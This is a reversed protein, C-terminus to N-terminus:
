SIIYTHFSIGRLTSFTERASLSHQNYLMALWEISKHTIDLWVQSDYWTRVIRMHSLCHRQIISMTLLILSLTTLLILVLSTLLIFELIRMSPVRHSPGGLYPSSNTLLILSIRTLLILVPRTLLILVTYKHTIDLAVIIRM